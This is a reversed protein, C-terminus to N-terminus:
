LNPYRWSTKEIKTTFDPEKGKTKRDWNPWVSIKFAKRTRETETRRDTKGKKEKWQAREHSRWMFLLIHNGSLIDGM